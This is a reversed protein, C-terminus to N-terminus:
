ESAEDIQQLVGDMPLAITFHLPPQAQPQRLYVRTHEGEPEIWAINELPIAVNINSKVSPVAIMKM